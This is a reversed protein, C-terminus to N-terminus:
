ATLYRQAASRAGSSCGPYRCLRSVFLRALASRANAAIARSSPPARTVVARTANVNPNQLLVEVMVPHLRRGLVQEPM